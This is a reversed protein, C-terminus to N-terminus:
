NRDFVTPWRRSHHLVRLIEVVRHKVRYAVIDRGNAVVLERTGAVRGPRGLNPQDVLHETQSVIEAVFERAAKPNDQAIYESIEDLNALAKRLWRVNTM